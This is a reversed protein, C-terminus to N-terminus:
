KLTSIIHITDSRKMDAHMAYRTVLDGDHLSLMATIPPLKGLYDAHITLQNKDAKLSIPIVLKKNSLKHNDVITEGNLLITITDDDKIDYDWVSLIIKSKRTNFKGKEFLRRNNYIDDLDIIEAITTKPLKTLRSDFNMRTDLAKITKNKNLESVGRQLVQGKLICSCEEEDDFNVVSNITNKIDIKDSEIDLKLDSSIGESNKILREFYFSGPLCNQAEWNGSMMYKNANSFFNLVGKKLCLNLDSYFQKSYVKTDRYHIKKGDLFLEINFNIFKKGEDSDVQLLSKGVYYNEDVRNVHLRMTISEKGEQKLWGSWVGNLDNSAFLDCTIFLILISLKKM